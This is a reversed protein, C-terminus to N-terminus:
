HHQRTQILLYDRSHSFMLSSQLITSKAPSGAEPEKEAVIASNVSAKQATHEWTSHQSPLGTTLFMKSENCLARTQDRTLSSLDWVGCLLAPSFFFFATGVHHWQIKARM